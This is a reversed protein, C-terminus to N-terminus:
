RYRVGLLRATTRCGLTIFLIGMIRWKKNNLLKYNKFFAREENIYSFVANQHEKDTLREATLVADMMYEWYYEAALSLTKSALSKTKMYEVGSTAIRFKSKAKQCLSSEDRKESLSGTRRYTAGYIYENYFWVRKASVIVRPLWEDEEHDLGKTFFLNNKILFDRKFLKNVPCTLTLVYQNSLVEYLVDGIFMGNVKYDDQGHIEDNIEENFSKLKSFVIDPKEELIYIMREYVNSELVKDDSDIFHIYDGSAAKLGVNRSDSAGGNEKHIVSVRSDSMAYDDCITGSNDTSGDDVLIVEINRFTQSLVSDVCRNLYKETNYVPIVVTIKM